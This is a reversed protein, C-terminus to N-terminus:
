QLIIYVIIDFCIESFQIVQDLLKILEEPEPVDGTSDILFCAKAASLRQM